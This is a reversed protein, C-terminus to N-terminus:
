RAAVTRNRGGRKAEYLAQDAQEFVSHYDKGHDPYRAIGISVTIPSGTPSTSGALRGRIREALLRGTNLSQEPLLVVFEEGGFRCCLGTEGTETELIRALYALVEDGTNHGYTDNVAKFHDVDVALLTFPKSEATWEALRADMSARNALGTLKDTRAAETMRDAQHQLGGVALTMARALHHAEYNWHSTFPPAEMREGAAIQRATRTLVTFPVTLRRAIWLSILLIIVFLPVISALQSQVLERMAINVQAAPSQLVVGWGIQPMAVYGALYKRGNINVVSGTGRPAKMLKQVIVDSLAVEGDRGPDPQYILNGSQDVIYAYTGRQSRTAHDFIDSLLNKQDQLYIIGGVFGQYQDTRDFVPYSFLVLMRGSVDAFPESILPRRSELARYFAPSAMQNATRDFSIPASSRIAGTEDVTIVANFFDRGSVMTRLYESSQELAGDKEEIYKATAELGHQMSFLFTHMTVSLNRAGEFNSQLMSETLTNKESKLAVSTLIVTIGLMSFVLLGIILVNLRIQGLKKRMLGAM